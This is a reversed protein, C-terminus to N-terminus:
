FGGCFLTFLVLINHFSHMAIATFINKSDFYACAFAFGLGGYPIIYFFQPWNQKIADLSEFSTLVHMSGFFLGSFLAFPIIKEFVKRFGMRFVLEEIFPLIFSMSIIAFIPLEQLITRNTSENTAISGKFLILNIIINGIVMIVLGIGWWKFGIKILNKWNLKFEQFQFKLDKRFIYILLFATIAYILLNVLNNLIFSKNIDIRFYLILAALFSPMLVYLVFILFGKSFEIIFNKVKM